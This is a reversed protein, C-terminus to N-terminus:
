HIRQAPTRPTPVVAEFSYLFYGPSETIGVHPVMSAWFILFSFQRGERGPILVERVPAHAEVHSAQYSSRDTYLGAQALEVRSADAFRFRRDTTTANILIRLLDTSESLDPHTDIHLGEYHVGEAESIVPGSYAKCFSHRFHVSFLRDFQQAINAHLADWLQWAAPFSNETAVRECGLLYGWEVGHSAFERRRRLVERNASTVLSADIPCEDQCLTVLPSQGRLLLPKAIM